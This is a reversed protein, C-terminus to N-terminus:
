TSQSCSYMLRYNPIITKCIHLVSCNFIIPTTAREIIKQPSFLENNFLMPYQGLMLVINGVDICKMLKEMGDAVDKIKKSRRILCKLAM